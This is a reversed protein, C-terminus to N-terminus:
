GAAFLATRTGEIERPTTDPTPPAAEDATCSLIPISTVLLVLASVLLPLLSIRVTNMGM